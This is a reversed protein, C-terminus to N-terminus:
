KDRRTCFSTELSLDESFGYVKWLDPSKLFFLSFFTNEKPYLQRDIEFPRLFTVYETQM